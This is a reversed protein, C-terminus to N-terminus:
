DNHPTHRPIRPIPLQQPRGSLCSTRRLLSSMGNGVGNPDFDQILEYNRTDFEGHELANQSLNLRELVKSDPQKTNLFEDSRTADAFETQYLALFPKDHKANADLPIEQFLAGNTVSKTDILAGLHDQKYWEIWDEPSLKTPRSTVWLLHPPPAM